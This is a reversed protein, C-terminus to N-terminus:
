RKASGPEAQKRHRKALLGAPLINAAASEIKNKLGTVIDGEGRMMAEFGAKAVEAADDKEAVGVGTDMMDAREFFETETAGPM